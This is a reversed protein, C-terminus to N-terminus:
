KLKFLYAAIKDAEEKSVPVTNYRPDAMIAGQKVEGPKEIWYSLNERTNELALAAITTRSGVHTLEPGSTRVRNRYSVIETETLGSGRIMHCRNCSKEVFLKRGEEAEMTLPAKATALQAEAWKDYSNSGEKPHVFIKIGMLAHSSGCLEACQGIYVGAKEPKFYIPYERGPTADRKGAINPVWWAHIVDASTLSLHVWTGEEVHIENATSFIVASPNGPDVYDYEWWWQKGIVNVRLSEEGEGPGKELEFVGQLTPITIGIVILTPAITWMIELTTNGHTQHPVRNDGPRARFRVLAYVFVAAVILFIVGCLLLLNNYFGASIRGSESTPELIDRQVKECATLATMSLASLALWGRRWLAGPNSVDQGPQACFSRPSHTKLAQSMM